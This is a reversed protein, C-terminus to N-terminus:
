TLVFAFLFGLLQIRGWCSGVIADQTGGRHVKQIISRPQSLAFNSWYHLLLSVKGRIKCETRWKAKVFWVLVANFLMEALLFIKSDRSDDPNKGWHHQEQFTRFRYVLSGNGISVTSCHQHSTAIPLCWPTVGNADWGIVDDGVQIIEDLVHAKKKGQTRAQVVDHKAVVVQDSSPEWPNYWWQICDSRHTHLCGPIKGKLGLSSFRSPPNKGIKM